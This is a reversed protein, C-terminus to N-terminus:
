QGFLWKVAGAVITAMGIAWPLGTVAFIILFAPAGTVITKDKYKISSKMM